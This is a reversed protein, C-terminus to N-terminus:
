EPTCVYQQLLSLLLFSPVPSAEGLSTDYKFDYLMNRLGDQNNTYVDNEPEVLQVHFYVPITFLM